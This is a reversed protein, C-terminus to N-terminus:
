FGLPSSNAQILTGRDGIYFEAEKDRIRVKSCGQFPKVNYIDYLVAAELEYDNNDLRCCHIYEIKMRAYTNQRTAEIYIPIWADKKEHKEKRDFNANYNGEDTRARVLVSLANITEPLISTKIASDDKLEKQIWNCISDITKDINEM